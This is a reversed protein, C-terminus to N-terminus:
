PLWWRTRAESDARMREIQAPSKDRFSGWQSWAFHRGRFESAATSRAFEPRNRTKLDHPLQPM